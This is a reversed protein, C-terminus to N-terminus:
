IKRHALDGDPIWSHKFLYKVMLLIQFQPHDQVGEFHCWFIVVQYQWPSMVLVLNLSNILPCTGSCVCWMLISTMFVQNWPSLAICISLYRPCKTLSLHVYLKQGLPQVGLVLKVGNWSHHVCGCICVTRLFFAQHFFHCQFSLRTSFIVTSFFGQKNQFVHVFLRTNTKKESWILILAM